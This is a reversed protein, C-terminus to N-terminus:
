CVVSVFDVIGVVAVAGYSCSTHDSLSLQALLLAYSLVNNWLKPCIDSKIGKKFFKAMYSILASCHVEGPHGTDQIVVGDDGVVLVQKSCVQYM